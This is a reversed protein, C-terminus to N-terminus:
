IGKVANADLMFTMANEGKQDRSQWMHLAFPTATQLLDRYTYDKGAEAGSMLLAEEVTRMLCMLVDELANINVIAPGDILHKRELKKRM